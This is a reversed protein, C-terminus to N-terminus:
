GKPPFPNKGYSTEEQITGNKKRIVLQGEQNKAAERGRQVADEKRAFRGTAKENGRKRLVWEGRDPFVYYIPVPM